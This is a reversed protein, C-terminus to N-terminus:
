RKSRGFTRCPCSSINWRTCEHIAFLSSVAFSFRAHVFFIKLIKHFFHAAASQQVVIKVLRQATPLVFYEKVDHGLRDSEVVTPDQRQFARQMGDFLDRAIGAFEDDVFFQDNVHLARTAGVCLRYTM